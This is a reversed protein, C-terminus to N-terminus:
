RLSSSIARFSCWRLAEALTEEQAVKLTINQWKTLMNDCSEVENSTNRSSRKSSIPHNTKGLYNRSLSINEILLNWFDNEDLRRELLIVWRYWFDILGKFQLPLNIVADSSNSNKLDFKEFLPERKPQQTIKLPELGTTEGENADVVSDEAELNVSNSGAGSKQSKSPTKKDGESRRKRNNSPIDGQVDKEVAAVVNSNKKVRKSVPEDDDAMGGDNLKKKWNIPKKVRVSRAETESERDSENDSGCENIMENSKTALYGLDHFLSAM